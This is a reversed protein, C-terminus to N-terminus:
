IETEPLMATSTLVNKKMLYIYLEEFNSKCTSAFNEYIDLSKKSGRILSKATYRLRYHEFKDNNKQKTKFLTTWFYTVLGLNDNGPFDINESVKLNTM